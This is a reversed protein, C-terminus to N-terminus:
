WLASAGTGTRWGWCWCVLWVAQEALPRRKRVTAVGTAELPEEIWDAEISSLLRTFKEPEAYKERVWRCPVERTGVGRDM